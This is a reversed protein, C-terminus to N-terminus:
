AFRLKGIQRWHGPRGGRLDGGLTDISALVLNETLNRPSSHARHKLSTIGVQTAIQGDLYKQFRVAIILDQDAPKDLLRLDASLKLV